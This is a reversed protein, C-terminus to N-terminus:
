PHIATPQNNNSSSTVAVATPNLPPLRVDPLSLQNIAESHRIREFNKM